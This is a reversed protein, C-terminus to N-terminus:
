SRVNNNDEGGTMVVFAKKGVYGCSRCFYYAIGRVAVGQWCLHESMEIESDRQVGISYPCQPCDYQAETNLREIEEYAEERTRM